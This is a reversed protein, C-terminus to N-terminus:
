MAGHNADVIFSAAHDIRVLVRTIEFLPLRLAFCVAAVRHLM